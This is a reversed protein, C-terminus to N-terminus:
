GLHRTHCRGGDLILADFLRSFRMMAELVACPNWAEGFIGQKM